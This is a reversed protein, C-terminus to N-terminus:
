AMLSTLIFVMMEGHGFHFLPFRAAGTVVTGSRESKGFAGLAVLDTFDGVPNLCCARHGEAMCPMEPGELAIGAM